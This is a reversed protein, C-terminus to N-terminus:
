SPVAWIEDKSVTAVHRYGLGRLLKQPADREAGFRKWLYKNEFLVVPRCRQLTARAGALVFPESGEVDLKVFGVRDLHWDDIRELPVDTGPMVFRAGTNALTAGREDLRMSVRGPGAGLAVHRVDVNGCGFRAMNVRLAEVTDAAPEVAIVREFRAALPKAWTGVHAGGDIAVSFDTVCTLARELHTGQYAGDPTLQAAMLEDADPFAWGYRDKM